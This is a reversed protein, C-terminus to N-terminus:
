GSFHTFFLCFYIAHFISGFHNKVLFTLVKSILLIKKILRQQVLFEHNVSKIYCKSKFRLELYISVPVFLLSCNAMVMIAVTRKFAIHQTIDYMLSRFGYGESHLFLVCM